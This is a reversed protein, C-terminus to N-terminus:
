RNSREGLVGAQRKNTTQTDAQCLISYLLLKCSDQSPVGVLAFAVVCSTGLFIWFSTISDDFDMSRKLLGSQNVSKVPFCASWNNCRYLRHPLLNGLWVLKWFCVVRPTCNSTCDPYCFFHKNPGHLWMNSPMSRMCLSHKNRDIHLLRTTFSLFSTLDWSGHTCLLTLLSYCAYIHIATLVPM